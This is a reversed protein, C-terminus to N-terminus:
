LPLAALVSSDARLVFWANGAAEWRLYVAEDAGSQADAADRAHETQWHPLVRGTVVAERRPAPQLSVFMPVITVRGHTPPEDAARHDAARCGGSFERGDCCSWRRTSPELRGIHTRCQWTGVNESETYHLACVACVACREFRACTAPHAMRLRAHVQASDIGPRVPAPATGRAFDGLVSTM